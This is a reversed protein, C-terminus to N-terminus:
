GGEARSDDRRLQGVPTAAGGSTELQLHQRERTSDTASAGRAEEAERRTKAPAQQRSIGVEAENLLNLESQEGPRPM